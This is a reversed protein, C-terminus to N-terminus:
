VLGLLKRAIARFSRARRSCRGPTSQQRVRGARARARATRAGTPRSAPPVAEVGGVAADVWGDVEDLTALGFGADGLMLALASLYPARGRRLLRAGRRRDGARRSSLLYAEPGGSADLLVRTREAGLAALSSSLAAHLRPMSLSTVATVGAPPERQLRSRPGTPLASLTPVGAPMTSGVLAAGVGDALAGAAERGRLRRAGRRLPGSGDADDLKEALLAPWLRASLKAGEPTRALRAALARRLEASLASTEVLPEALRIAFPLLEAELAEAVLIAKAEDTEPSSRGSRSRRAGCGGSSPSRSGASSGARLRPSPPSCRRRTTRGAARPSRTSWPRTSRRSRPRVPSSSSGSACRSSGSRSAPARTSTSSTACRWGPSTTSASRSSSPRRDGPGRQRARAARARRARDRARRPGPPGGRAPAASRPHHGGGRALDRARARLARPAALGSARPAERRRALAGRASARGPAGAGERARARRAGPGRRRHPGRAPRVARGRARGPGRAGRDGQRRVEVSAAGRLLKRYLATALEPAHAAFVEALEIQAPEDERAELLEALRVAHRVSGSRALAWLAERLKGGDEAAEALALAEDLRGEALAPGFGQALARDHAGLRRWRALLEAPALLGAAQEAVLVVQELARGPLGAEEFADAAEVRLPGRADEPSLAAAEVLAEAAARLEGQRRCLAVTLMWAEVNPEVAISARAWVQAQVDDGARQASRAAQFLLQAKRKDAVLEARAAFVPGLAAHDGQEILLAELRDLADRYGAGEAGRAVVQELRARALADRWRRPPAARARARAGGARRRRPHARGAERAHRPAERGPPARQEFALVRLARADDPAAEAARSRLTGAADPDSLEAEAVEAAALLLEAARGGGTAAASREYLEVLDGARGAAKLGEAAREVIRADAPRLKALPLWADLGEAPSDFLEAARRLLAEAEAGESRKALELQTRFLGSTDETRTFVESLLSLAEKGKEGEPDLAVVAEFADAADHYARAALAAHGLRLQARLRVPM